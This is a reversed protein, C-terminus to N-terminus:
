APLAPAATLQKVLIGLGREMSLRMVDQKSLKTARAAEDIQEALEDPVRLPVNKGEPRKAKEQSM